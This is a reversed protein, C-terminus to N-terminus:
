VQPCWARLGSQFKGEVAALARQLQHRERQLSAAQAALRNARQHTDDARLTLAAVEQELEVLGAEAAERAAQEQVLEALAAACDARAQRAEAEAANRAAEAADRATADSCAQRHLQVPTPAGLAQVVTHSLVHLVTCAAMILHERWCLLCGASMLAGACRPECGPWGKMACREPLRAPLTTM